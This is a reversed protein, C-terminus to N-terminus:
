RGERATLQYTCGRSAVVVQGYVSCVTSTTTNPMEIELRWAIVGPHDAVRFKDDSWSSLLQASAPPGKARARQLM